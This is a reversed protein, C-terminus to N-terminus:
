PRTGGETAAKEGPKEREASSLTVATENSDRFTAKAVKMIDEPTVKQYEAYLRNITQPDGTLELFQAVTVAVSPASDLQQAFGYRLHSKIRELRAPDVPETQLKEFAAQLASLVKPSAEDSHLRSTITFLYPDRHFDAGGQIFDVLQREVVLDQYLPANESFLLQSILDLAATTKTTADFAPVHYGITVYPRTQVPWDIEASRKETQPPEAPIQVKEYGPKWGSWYRSAMSFVQDPEVDGVVLLKVNEPRYFRHFFQLSYQYSDPMAKIDKLFGMTTHEYTHKEFALERLKEHLHLFPSSANKNYEGLISLAETRFDAESYKLNEFRDSEIKMMTELQSSPGVIYYNTWDDTTFANSDAGMKKLIDNYVDQPYRETGRFMMHEFFHAFGSHGPEVEQRSGTRVVVYYAVIGPSDFPIAFVDLGNDLTKHHVAFPFLDESAQAAPAPAVAVVLALALLATGIRTLM